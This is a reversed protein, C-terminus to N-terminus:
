GQTIERLYAFSQRVDELPESSTDQEVIFWDTAQAMTLLQQWPLSGAGVPAFLGGVERSRDKLHLLKLREAHQDILAEPDRGAVAAWYVDLEFDVLGPDTEAVLTEWMTTAGLPVFEFDHNHYALRLGHGSLM